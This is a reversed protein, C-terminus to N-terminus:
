RAPAPRPGLADVPGDAGRYEPAAAVEDMTLDESIRMAGDVRLFHLTEWVVAVRRTGVGLFGGVDVVAALPRGDPDVLVDVIRGIQEGATDVVIRGLVGAGRGEGFRVVSPPPATQAAAPAALLLLIAIM